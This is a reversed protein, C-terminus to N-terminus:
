ESIPVEVICYTTFYFEVYAIVFIISVEVNDDDEDDEESSEEEANKLWEIFKEAQSHIDKAVEKSV